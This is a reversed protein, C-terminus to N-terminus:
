ELYPDHTFRPGVQVQDLVLIRSGCGGGGEGDECRAALWEQLRGVDGDDASNDAAYFASPLSIIAAADTAGDDSKLGSIKRMVHVPCRMVRADGAWEADPLSVSMSNLFAVGDWLILALKGPEHPTESM